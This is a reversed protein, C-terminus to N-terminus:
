PTGLYLGRWRWCFFRQLKTVVKSQVIRCRETEHGINTSFFVILSLLCLQFLNYLFPCASHLYKWSTIFLIQWALEKLFVFISWFNHRKFYAIKILQVEQVVKYNRYRWAVPSRRQQILLYELHHGASTLEPCPRGELHENISPEISIIWLFASKNVNNTLLFFSILKNENLPSSGTYHPPAYRYGM